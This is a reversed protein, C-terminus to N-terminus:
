ECVVEEVWEKGMFNGTVTKTLVDGTKKMETLITGASAGSVFIEAGFVLADSGQCSIAMNMSVPIVDTSPAGVHTVGDALFRQVQRVGSHEWTEALEYFSVGNLVGQTIRLDVSNSQTETLNSQCRAYTGTLDPCAFATSGLFLTVLLALRM